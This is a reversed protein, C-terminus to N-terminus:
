EEELYNMPEQHHCITCEKMQSLTEEGAMKNQIFLVHTTYTGCTDCYIEKRPLTPDESLSRKTAGGSSTRKLINVYVRKDDITEVQRCQNCYYEIEGNNARPTLVSQCNKCFYVKAGDSREKRAEPLQTATTTEDFM